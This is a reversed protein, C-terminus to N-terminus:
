TSSNKLLTKKEAYVKQKANKSRCTPCYNKRGKQPKRDYRVYLQNCKDCVCLQRVGALCQALEVWMKQFCGWGTDINMRPRQEKDWKLWLTVDSGSLWGNVSSALFFRQITVDFKNEEECWGAMKWLSPPAPKGELLYSAIDLIAKVLRAYHRYFYLPEAPFWLCSDIGGEWKFKMRNPSWICDQHKVCIWLPGWKKAFALIDEDTGEALKVFDNLVGETEEKKVWGISELINLVNEGKDTSLVFPDARLPLNKQWEPPIPYIVCDVLKNSSDPWKGLKVDPPVWIASYGELYAQLRSNEDTFGAIDWNAWNM